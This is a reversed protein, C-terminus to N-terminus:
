VAYTQGEEEYISLAQPIYLSQIGPLALVDGCFVADEKREHHTDEKFKVQKWIETTTTVQAHHIRLRWNPAFIACGSPARQLQNPHLIPSSIMEEPEQVTRYGHLVIATLPYQRLAKTIFELRQPHMMDDADFFSIYPTTALEAARNRNEAANKREQTVNIRYPFSYRTTTFEIPLEEDRTSSCSVIVEAPKVTQAEISDFCRILKQLHVKYCPICITISM